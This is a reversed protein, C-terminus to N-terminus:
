PQKTAPVRVRQKSTIGKSIAVITEGSQLGKTVLVQQEDTTSTDVPVFRTHGQEIVLVGQRGGSDRLLATLPIVIGSDHGTDISVEAEQDIAFRKPVTDFAVHVDLERTAADSQLAIRVVKGPVAEGTRLKIRAIQGPKVKGVVSEDVRTAVWLTKPDVLRLIPAGPAVITGAEALRQIVIGEMPAVIKTYSIVTDSYKAEQALTTADAARAALSAKAADVGAKASQVAASSVDLVSQSVFGQGVLNRWYWTQLLRPLPLKLALPIKLWLM